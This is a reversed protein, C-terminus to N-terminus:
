LIVERPITVGEDSIPVDFTQGHRVYHARMTEQKRGVFFHLDYTRAVYNIRACTTVTIWGGHNVTISTEDFSVIPTQYLYVTTIGNDHQIRTHPKKQLPRQKM